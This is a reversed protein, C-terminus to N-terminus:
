QSFKQRVMAKCVNCEWYGGSKKQLRILKHKDDHCAQCYPGEKGKETELWYYPMEFVLSGKIKLEEQLRTIEADKDILLERVDALQMKVDALASILEALKLKTEAQELSLDSEKILKAIDTAAKVSTFITSITSLDM